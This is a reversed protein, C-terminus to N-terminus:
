RRPGSRSAATPRIRAARASNPTPPTRVVIGNWRATIRCGSKRAPRRDVASRRARRGPRGRGGRREGRAPVRRPPPRRGAPARGSAAAEVARPRARASPWPPGAPSRREAATVGRPLSAPRPRGASATRTSPVRTRRRSRPAAPPRSARARRRGARRPPHAAGRSRGRSPGAPRRRRDRPGRRPGRRSRVDHHVALREPDLDLIRRAAPPRGGASRAVAAALPEDRRHGALDDGDQDVTPWGTSGPAPSTTRSAM